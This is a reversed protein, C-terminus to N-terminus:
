AQAKALARATREKEIEQYTEWLLESDAISRVDTLLKLVDTLMRAEAERIKVTVHASVEENGLKERLEANVSMIRDLKEKLMKEGLTSAAIENKRTVSNTIPWHEAWKSKNMLAHLKTSDGAAALLRMCSFLKKSAAASGSGSSRLYFPQVGACGWQELIPKSAEPIDQLDLNLEVKMRHKSSYLLGRYAILMADGIEPQQVYIEEGGHMNGNAHVLFVHRESDYTLTVADEQEPTPRSFFLPLLFTPKSGKDDFNWRQGHSNLLLFAWRLEEVTVNLSNETAFKLATEVEGNAFQQWKEASTGHTTLAWEWAPVKFLGNEEQWKLNPLTSILNRIPAQNSKRMYAFNVLFGATPSVVGSSIATELQTHFPVNKMMATVAMDGPITLLLSGKTQASNVALGMGNGFDRVVLVGSMGMARLGEFASSWETFRPDRDSDDASDQASTGAAGNGSTQTHTQMGLTEKLSDLHKPSSYLLMGTVIASLAVSFAAVYRTTKGGFFFTKPSNTPPKTEVAPPPAVVEKETAM